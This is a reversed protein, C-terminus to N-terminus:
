NGREEEHNRPSTQDTPTLPRQNFPHAYVSRQDTIWVKAGLIGAVLGVLGTGSGLEVITKGQLASRGRQALYSSLVQLDFQHNILLDLRKCQGRWGAL